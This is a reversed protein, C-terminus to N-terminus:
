QRLMSLRVVFFLSYLLCSEVVGQLNGFHTGMLLFYDFLKALLGNSERLYGTMVIGNIKQDFHSFGLLGIRHQINGASRPNDGTREGTLAAV